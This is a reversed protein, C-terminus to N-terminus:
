KVLEKCYRANHEFCNDAKEQFDAKVPSLTEIADLVHNWRRQLENSLLRYAKAEARALAIREGVSKDYTDDEHCKATAKVVIYFYGFIESLVDPTKLTAALKATVNNGDYFYETDLTTLKIDNRDLNM